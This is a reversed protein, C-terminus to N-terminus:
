KIKENNDRIDFIYCILVFYWGPLPKQAGGAIFSIIVILIIMRLCQNLGQLHTFLSVAYCHASYRTPVHGPGSQRTWISANGGREQTAKLISSLMVMDWPGWTYPLASGRGAGSYQCSSQPSIVIHPKRLLSGPAYCTNLLHYWNNTNLCPERWRSLLVNAPLNGLGPHITM